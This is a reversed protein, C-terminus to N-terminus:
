VTSGSPLRAAVFATAREAQARDIVHPVADIRGDVRHGEAAFRAVTEDHWAADVVPDYSGNM